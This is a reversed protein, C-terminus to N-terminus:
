IHILSLDYAKEGPLIELRKLTSFDYDPITFIFDVMEVNRNELAYSILCEKDHNVQNVNEKAKVLKKMLELNNMKAAMLLANNGSCDVSGIFKNNEMLYEAIEYNKTEIAFILPSKIEVGKIHDIRNNKTIKKIYNLDKNEIKKYIKEVKTELCGSFIMTAMILTLITKKM